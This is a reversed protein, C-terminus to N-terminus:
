LIGLLSKYFSRSRLEHWPNFNEEKAEGNVRVRSARLLTPKIAVKNKILSFRLLRESHLALQLEDFYKEIFDFRLGYARAASVGRCISFRDNVGGHWQWFPIYSTSANARMASAITSDFGNWYMLDPRCFIFLADPHAELAVQTASKLSWLQHFLNKLSNFDDSWADGYSKARSFLNSNGETQLFDQPKELKLWDFAIKKYEEVDYFGDEGSRPNVVRQQDYFHGFVTVDGHRKAPDIINRNISDYTYTLSRTIGFFVINIKM